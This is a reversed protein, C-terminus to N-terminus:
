RVVKFQARAEAETQGVRDKAKVVLTYEGPQVGATLNLTLAGNLMRRPYFPAGSDAAADEQSYLVKGSAGLIALGYSVDFRNKEGLQFGAMQFRALLIEGERYAAETMPQRDAEQKFFGLSLVSFRATKPLPRGGVKFEVERDSSSKANEDAVRLKLRYIGPELQAPLPLTYAVKPLWEKDNVGLDEKVAGNAPPALLIGEPDVGVLQWRLDVSDKVAKFGSIRFSLYLLEGPYYEYNAAIAPGDEQKFHLTTKSIALAPAPAPQKQQAWISAAAFALLAIRRVGRNRM